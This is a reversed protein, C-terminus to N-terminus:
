VSIVVLRPSPAVSSLFCFTFFVLIITATLFFCFSVFLVVAATMVVTHCHLMAMDSAASVTASTPVTRCLGLPRVALM